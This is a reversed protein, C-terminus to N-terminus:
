WERYDGSRINEYDTFFDIEWIKKGARRPNDSFFQNRDTTDPTKQM